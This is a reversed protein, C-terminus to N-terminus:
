KDELNITIWLSNSSNRKVTEFLWLNLKMEDWFLHCINITSQDIELWSSNIAHDFCRGRWNDLWEQNELFRWSSEPKWLQLPFFNASTQPFIKLEWFISCVVECSQGNKM